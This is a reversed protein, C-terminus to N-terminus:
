FLDTCGGGHFERPPVCRYNEGCTGRSLYLQGHQDLVCEQVTEADECQVFGPETCAGINEGTCVIESVVSTEDEACSPREAPCQFSEIVTHAECPLGRSDECSTGGCKLYEGVEGGCQRGFGEVRCEDAATASCGLLSVGVVM